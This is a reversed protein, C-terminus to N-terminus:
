ESFLNFLLFIVHFLLYIFTSFCFKRCKSLFFKCCKGNKYEHFIYCITKSPFINSFIAFEYVMFNTKWLYIVFLSYYIIITTFFLLVSHQTLFFFFVCVEYILCLLCNYQSRCWLINCSLVNIKLHDCVFVNLIKM